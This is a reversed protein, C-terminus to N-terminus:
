AFLPLYIYKHSLAQSGGLCDKVSLFNASADRAAAYVQTHTGSWDNGPCRLILYSRAVAAVVAM